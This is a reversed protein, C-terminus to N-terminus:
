VHSRAPPRPPNLQPPAQRPRPRQPPGGAGAFHVELGEKLHEPLEDFDRKNNKPFVLCTVGSRRAAMTKEKIGGVPMVTGLLDIEGTLELVTFSPFSMKEITM